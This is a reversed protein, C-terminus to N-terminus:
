TLTSVSECGTPIGQQSTYPVNIMKTASKVHEITFSGRISTNGTSLAIYEPYKIMDPSWVGSIRSAEEFEVHAALQGIRMFTIVEYKGPHNIM